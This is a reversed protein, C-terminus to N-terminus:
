EPLSFDSRKCARIKLRDMDFKEIVEDVSRYNGASVRRAM